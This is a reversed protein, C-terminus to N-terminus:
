IHNASEALIPVFDQMTGGRRPVFDVQLGTRLEAYGDTGANHYLVAGDQDLWIGEPRKGGVRLGRLAPVHVLFYKLPIIAGRGMDWVEASRHCIPYEGTVGSNKISDTVVSLFQGRQWVVQTQMRCIMPRFGFMRNSKQAAYEERLAKGQKHEAWSLYAMAANEYCANFKEFDGGEARVFTAQARLVVAGSQMVCVQKTTQKIQM